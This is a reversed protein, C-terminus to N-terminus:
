VNDLYYLSYFLGKKELLNNFDGVEVIRGDNMTLIADYKILIEKILRHTISLLTYDSELILNEIEMATQNDLNSMAEDLLLISNNRAIARAIAIRQKEGGSVQKGEDGVGSKLDNGRKNIFERLGVRNIAENIIDEDINKYFRINEEVTDDFVFPTQNVVSYISCLSDEKIKKLEIEDYFISGSYSHYQGMILKLLTSKGSGSNGVIAYKKGKEFIYSVNKIGCVNDYQFYVNKLEIKNNFDNISVLNNRINNDSMSFKDLISKASKIKYIEQIGNMIPNVLGNSLNVCAILVGVSVHSKLSLLLGSIVVAFFVIYGMFMSIGTILGVAANYKFRSDEVKNIKHEYREIIKEEVGYGKILEFGNLIDKTYKTAEEQDISYNHKFRRGKGSLLAPALLAFFSSIIAIFGILPNLYLLAIASFLLTVFMDLIRIISNLYDKELDEIHNTLLSMYKGTNVTYLDSLNMNLINKITIKKVSILVNKIIASSFCSYVVNIVVLVFIYGIVSLINVIIGNLTTENLSDILRQLIIALLVAFGAKIVTTIFLILFNKKQKKLIDNVM